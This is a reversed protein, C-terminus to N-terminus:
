VISFVNGLRQLLCRDLWWWRSVFSDLQMNLNMRVVSAPFCPKVPGPGVTYCLEFAYDVGNKGHRMRFWGLPMRSVARVARMM